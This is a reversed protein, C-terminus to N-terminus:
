FLANIIMYGISPCLLSGLGTYFTATMAGYPVLEPDVTALGGAVGSTSGVLGGYVMAATPNNLKILPAIFPTIIIALVSKIVGAAISIVIVESSAGLATGVVPGVVFTAAGGGITAMDVASQYGMWYAVLAGIFFSSAVGLLLAIIGPLGAKKINNIDAGFATSIIAYDRFMGGGLLGVGALWATDSVGKEGGTFVGAFYALVLGILIAIASAMNKQRIVKSLFKGLAMVFAVYMFAGVLEYSTFIKNIIEMM